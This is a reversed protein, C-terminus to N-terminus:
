IRRTTTIFYFSFINDTRLINVESFNWKFCFWRLYLTQSLFIKNQKDSCDSSYFRIRFIRKTNKLFHFINHFNTTLICM